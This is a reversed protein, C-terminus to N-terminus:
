VFDNLTSKTNALPLSKRLRFDVILEYSNTILKHTNLLPLCYEQQRGNNQPHVCYPFRCRLDDIMIQDVCLLRVATPFIGAATKQLFKM